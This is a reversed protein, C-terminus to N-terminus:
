RNIFNPRKYYDDIESKQDDSMFSLDYESKLKVWEQKSLNMSTILSLLDYGNKAHCFGRLQQEVLQVM